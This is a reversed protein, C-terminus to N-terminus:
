QMTYFLYGYRLNSSSSKSPIRVLPYVTCPVRHNNDHPPIANKYRVKLRALKLEKKKQKKILPVIIADHDMRRMELEKSTQEAKIAIIFKWINSGQKVRKNV